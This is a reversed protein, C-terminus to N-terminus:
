PLRSTGPSHAGPRVQPRMCASSTPNSSLWVVRYFLRNGHRYADTRHYLAYAAGTAGLVLAIGRGILRPRM